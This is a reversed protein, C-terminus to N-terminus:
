TSAHELLLTVSTHCCGVSFPPAGTCSNLRSISLPAAKPVLAVPALFEKQGTYLPSVHRHASEDGSGISDM